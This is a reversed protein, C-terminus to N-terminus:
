TRRSSALHTTKRIPSTTVLLVKGTSASAFGLYIGAPHNFEATTPPSQTLYGATGNGAITSITGQYVGLSNSTETVGRIRNNGVDAIALDGSGDSALGVPQYLEAASAPGGDGAFGATGTGVAETILGTGANVERVVNYQEDAIYLNGSSDFALGAPSGLQASAAPGGNGSNGATGNGAVTTIMRDLDIKRVVHNAQDSFYLYTGWMAMGSPQSLTALWSFGGDGSYGPVGTGAYTYINGNQLDLFRIVNNGTDSIFLGWVAGSGLGEHGLYGYGVVVGSPLSLSASTAPGYDGSYGPNHNGAITSICGGWTHPHVLQPRATQAIAVTSSLLVTAVHIQVIQARINM